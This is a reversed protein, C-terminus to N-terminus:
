PCHPHSSPFDTKQKKMLPRLKRTEKLIECALELIKASADRASLEKLRWDAIKAEKGGLLYNLTVGLAIAMNYANSTDPIREYKIWGNFTNPSVGIYEAFQRHTMKHAKILPRVRGWFTDNNM